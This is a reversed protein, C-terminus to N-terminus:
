VRERCSARGIQDQQELFDSQKNFDDISFFGDNLGHPDPKYTEAPEYDSEESFMEQEGGDIDLDEEGSLADESPQADADDDLGDYEWDLGEEGLSSEDLDDAFEEIGDAEEDDDQVTVVGDDEPLSLEIEEAAAEVIKRTQEFVQNVGFGDLHVKKLHLVRVDSDYGHGRKRKKRLEQQRQTQVESIGAAVPDLYRKAAALFAANLQITPQLFALPNAVLSSSSNMAAPQLDMPPPHASGVSLTHSSISNDPSFSLPAM